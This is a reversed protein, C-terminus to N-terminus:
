VIEKEVQIYTEIEKEIEVLKGKDAPLNAVLEVRSALTQNGIYDAFKDMAENLEPHRVIRLIIKDTVDFNSEKRLNQIRNVFERAIGELRLEPTVNIDLAVTIAGESAVQLGPIDESHIEVDELSLTVQQGEIFGTFTGTREFGTIEQQTMLSIQLSIAKMLKGFKPGLTKFNAKIKKKIVGAADTLYEVAKVNVETLIISEVAEFQKRFNENLVPIIIKALPQRVKLKEKRRLGLIMSSVKQAIYMREELEKNISNEDYKPFLTLHISNDPERGSIRNLDCYLQDMYFPAIPAALKAVNELCTYLTQYASIKDTDYEGGWFRKRSLRVYWNSLNETVFESIARGARTPEYNEYADTVDKILSNLLSLIWRDLEPRLKEAVREESFVFGDVNAYLAFFNYTNYLTGFFKRRVEDVGTIDFKLNDWPQSNTIMYWRLPDSGYKEITAFPDVGNGLRKSMKNGNADLVLGNSIINKFSVSGKVMTAIAHLTFFWGRTQDVGEAIFDAPFVENFVDENEFPYHAQAFPMAGSDFWVDILDTERFMKVGKPSILFIDDVFPRHFDIKDYNEKSFDGVIFDKFPNSEMVGASVSKNIEAMLEEASGICVEETRDETRWIPLPTGWYRSRSLNWDVLNELWNGFRGIGTSQPKWNITKNLEILQDRVATTRIFWSDLPYYLVPKDTRWCHPYSHVHKEVKFARNERKLMVSLDIDLTSDNETLSDDYDNKVFRGAYEGYLQIDINNSVFDPSLDDIRFFRGQRDVMPQQKGEKDILMLPVIGNQKAVRDDDAGFTPAIHVIGTGEGTTVFDGAVVSFADGLPKVWPILQEYDMGVLELGAFESILQYPLNKSDSKYDSFTLVENKESFYNRFLDKALIVTAPESTYPNLTKVKVYRINVGVALATNSPLTWPTTTWALIFLDTDINEFLLQSKYNKVVKFQAICTTDKVDRYCGPQNLEHSSLGTGAAPSFPQISYGKYLLNKKYLDKLLWWLTEIYHSDYTIYPNDMNVWYGMQRTLDEWKDTYKMVETRCAANYDAVSITKGIDEKTIGLIKEVALEVPLGHTDWGAKRKVLFGQQTKYRCFIDKIARSVVHHIGPLGNASPPGEYFVFTPSGARTSISQHFTDNEEWYKLIEQNIKSLDFEKYERFKNSM